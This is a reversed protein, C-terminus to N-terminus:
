WCLWWGVDFCGPVFVDTGVSGFDVILVGDRFCIVM